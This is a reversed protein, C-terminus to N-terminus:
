SRKSAFYLVFCLYQNLDVGQAHLKALVPWQLAESGFDTRQRIAAIQDLVEAASRNVYSEWPEDGLQESSDASLWYLECTGEPIRFQFQGGVIALGAAAAATVAEEVAAVPWAYEKGRLTAKGLVSPSLLQECM